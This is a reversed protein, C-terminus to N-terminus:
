FTRMMREFTGNFLFNNDSAIDHANRRNKFEEGNFILEKITFFLQSWQIFVILIRRMYFIVIANNEKQCYIYIYM